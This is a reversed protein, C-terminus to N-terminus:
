AEFTCDPEDANALHVARLRQGSRIRGDLERTVAELQEFTLHDGYRRKVIEALSRADVSIEPEGEGGPPSAPRPKVAPKRPPPKAGPAAGRALALASPVFTGALGAMGVVKLFRRRGPAPRGPSPAM